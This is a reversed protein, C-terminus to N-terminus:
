RDDKKVEKRICLKIPVHQDHEILAEEIEMCMQLNADKRSPSSLDFRARYSCYSFENVHELSFSALAIVSM